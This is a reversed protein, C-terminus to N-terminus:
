AHELDFPKSRTDDLSQQIRAQQEDAKLGSIDFTQWSPELMEAVVQFPTRIGSPRQFTTRLIEHRRIIENLAAKLTDENLNGTLEIACLACFTRGTAAQQQSWLNTQQPSLRFGETNPM